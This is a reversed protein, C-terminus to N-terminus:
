KAEKKLGELETDIEKEAAKLHERFTDRIALEEQTLQREDKIKELADLHNTMDKEMQDFRHRMLDETRPVALRVKQRLRALKYYLYMITGVIMALALIVILFLSLYDLVLYIIRYIASQNVAVTYPGSPLSTAGIDNTVTAVFTDAGSALEHSWTLIFKGAADTLTTDSNEQGSSDKVTVTITSNPYSHGQIRLLDGQQLESPYSDITPPEISEISINASATTENGAKDYANVVVTKAGPSQIPPTYPGSGLAAASVTTFSGDGIKVDYHDMGSLADTTNFSLAPRPDTTNEPHVETIKFPLPPVTDISFRFDAIAGWGVSNKFQAHFYYIGDPIDSLVKSSIAPSYVISPTATPSANYQLRVATVGSPIAWSFAPNPDNYWKTSDPNTSSIIVPAAPAGAEVVEQPNTVPTVLVPTSIAIQAGSQSSLVDTGLGDNALVTSDSFIVSANGARKARFTITIINGGEGVFGPTPLGGNWEITGDDNSFKPDEVWLSFISSSKSISLVELLNSPFQITGEATNIAQGLSGVLVQVSLINGVSVKSSSPSLSLSAAHATGALCLSLAATIIVSSIKKAYARRNRLQHM